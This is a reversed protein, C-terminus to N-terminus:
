RAFLGFEPRKPGKDRLLHACRLVEPDGYDWVREPRFDLWAPRVHWGCEWTVAGLAEVAIGLCSLVIVAGCLLRASAIRPWIIGLSLVLPLSLETLYRPGYSTGGWWLRNKALFYLTVAVWGLLYRGLPHSKSQAAVPLLVLAIAMVPSYFFLGKGPSVLLGALGEYVPLTFVTKPTLHRYGHAPAQYLADYGGSVTGFTRLNYWVLLAGILSAPLILTAWRQRRGILAYLGIALAGFADQPRCVVAMASGLSVLWADRVADRENLLLAAWLALSLCFLAPGHQWMAQSAIVWVGTGLAYTATLFLAARRDTFRLLSLFVFGASLSAFLSAAIKGLARYDGFHAPVGLLVPLAYVPAALIAGGVPYSSRLHGKVRRIAFTWEVQQRLTGQGGPATEDLMPDFQDLNFDGHRVISAPLLTAPITDALGLERFNASYVVFCGVVVVLWVSFPRAANASPAPDHM